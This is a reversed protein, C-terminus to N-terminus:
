HAAVREADLRLIMELLGNEDQLQVARKVVRKKAVLGRATYAPMAAIRLELEACEDSIEDAEGAEALEPTWAAPLFPLSV